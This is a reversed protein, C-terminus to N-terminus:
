RFFPADAVDVQQFHRVVARFCAQGLVHDGRERGVNCDYADACVIRVPMGCRFDYSHQLCGSGRDQARVLLTGDGNAELRVAQSDRGVTSRM